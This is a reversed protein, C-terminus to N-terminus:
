NNCLHRILVLATRTNGLPQFCYLARRECCPQPHAHHDALPPVPLCLHLRLPDRQWSPGLLCARDPEQKHLHNRLLELPPSEIATKAVSGGILGVGTRWKRTGLHEGVSQWLVLGAAAAHLAPVCRLLPNHLDSGVNGGRVCHGARGMDDRCQAPCRPTLTGIGGICGKGEGRDSGVCLSNCPAYCGWQWIWGAGESAM